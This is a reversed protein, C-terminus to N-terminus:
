MSAARALVLPGRGELAEAALLHEPRELGVLREDLAERRFPDVEHPAHGLPRVFAPWGMVYVSIRSMFQVRGLGLVDTKGSPASFSSNGGPVLPARHGRGPAAGGLVPAEDPDVGEVRRVDGVGDEDHGKGVAAVGVHAPGVRALDAVVEQHVILAEEQPVGASAARGAGLVLAVAEAPRQGEGVEYPEAVAGELGPVHDRLPLDVDGLIEVEDIDAPVGADDLLGRGDLGDPLGAIEPFLIEHERRVVVEGRLHLHSLFALELAGVAAVPFIGRGAVPHDPVQKM